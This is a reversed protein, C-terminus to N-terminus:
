SQSVVLSPEGIEGTNLVSSSNHSHHAPLALVNPLEFALLSRHRSISSSFKTRCSSPFM